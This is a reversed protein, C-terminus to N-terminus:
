TRSYNIEMSKLENGDPGTFFMEIKNHDNDILTIVSRKQMLQGTQPCKVESHMEWIKGSDDLNGSEIQMTTSANDIWFGEYQNSTTNFGWFGEGKFSPFPGEVQDGVYNQHLYLGDVHWSNTIKGTSVMPDGPGMWMKVESNFTGEFPQLRAHHDGPQPM